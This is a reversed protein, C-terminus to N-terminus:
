MTRAAAIESRAGVHRALQLDKYHRVGPAACVMKARAMHYRIGYLAGRALTGPTRTDILSIAIRHLIYIRMSLALSSRPGIKLNRPACVCMTRADAIECRAGVHRALQLDNFHRVCPAACVMKARAMHYHAGYLAGRALRGPARTDILSIAIRHRMYIFMSVELSPSPGIKLNFPACVSM